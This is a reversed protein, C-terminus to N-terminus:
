CHPTLYLTFFPHGDTHITLPHKIIYSSYFSTVCYTLTFIFTFYLNESCNLIVEM